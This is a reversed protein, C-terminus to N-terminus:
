YWFVNLFLNEFESIFATDIDKWDRVSANVNNLISAGTFVKTRTSASTDLRGYATSDSGSDTVSTSDVRDTFSLTDTGHTRSDAYGAQQNVASDPTDWTSNDTTSTQSGGMTLSSSRSGSTTKTDTGSAQNTAGITEIEGDALKSAMDLAYTEYLAYAREYRPATEDFKNQLRNQWTEMTEFALMREFYRQNFRQMLVNWRANIHPYISDDPDETEDRDLGKWGFQKYYDREVPDPNTDLSKYEVDVLKPMWPMDVDRFFENPDM